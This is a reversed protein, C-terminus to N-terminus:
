DFDETASVPQEIPTGDALKGRLAADKVTGYDLSEVAPTFKPKRVFKATDYTLNHKACLADRQRSSTIEIPQGTFNEEVYPKFANVNVPLFVRDALKRCECRVRTPQKRMSYIRESVHGAKCRYVYVPM